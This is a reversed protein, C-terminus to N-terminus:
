RRVKEWRANAAKRALARRLRKGLNKRSNLGAKRRIKRMFRHSLVIHVSDAHMGHHVCNEQRQELQSGFRREANEDPVVILKLQLIGLLPGLSIAGFRRVPVPSPSLLKALYCSPLGSAQAASEGTLAVRLEQARARMAQILGVYGSEYDIVALEREAVCLGGLDPKSNDPNAGDNRRSTTAFEKPL